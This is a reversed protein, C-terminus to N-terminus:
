SLTVGDQEMVQCKQPRNKAVNMQLHLELQIQKQNVVFFFFDACTCLNSEVTRGIALCKFTVYIDDTM